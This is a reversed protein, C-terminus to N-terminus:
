GHRKRSLLFPHIDQITNDPHNLEKYPESKILLSFISQDHRHEIFSEDNELMSPSDDVLPYRTALAYWEKLFSITLANKQLVMLTAQKQETDFENWLGLTDFLDMKTYKKEPYSTSTYLLSHQKCKENLQLIREYSTSDSIVECGSDLYFLTDGEKIQDMTKLILYPKWIWYGYGRKNKEFFDAHQKWFETDNKLTDDKYMVLKDFVDIASLERHIRDVADHFQSSGGGFSMVWMEPTYFPQKCPRICTLIIFFLLAIVLYM